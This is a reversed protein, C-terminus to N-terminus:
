RSLEGLVLATAIAVNLSEPGTTTKKPITLKQQVLATIEPSIGNAESGMILVADQPLTLEYISTGALFTGYIPRQTTTLFEKLDMYHCHVRSLSGMTAQVVKPNFCDVSTPSNVIHRIGFWDCLRIITGLNGPDAIQDLVLVIGKEPLTKQQPFKFVGLYPSPNKLCSMREMEKETVLRAQPLSGEQSSYLGIHDFGAALFEEVSKKGEVVFADLAKRGKKTNLSNIAKLEKKTIM